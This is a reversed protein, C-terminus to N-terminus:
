SIYSIKERIRAEFTDLSVAHGATLGEVARELTTLHVRDPRLVADGSAEDYKVVFWAIDCNTIDNVCDMKGLASFFAEDVVVAMKKGWRRLTPVKIQLQPMLRKPGSSRFDPRRHQAPFPIGDESYAMIARYEHSMASGSFYVAQMELACWRMPDCEPHVLVSDIRGVDERGPYGSYEIQEVNRELFGVENVVLPDSHGLIEEGIWEYIVKGEDFRCPCTTVLVGSTGSVISVAGSATDQRYLRLSCVGSDKTCLANGGRPACMMDPRDKKALTQLKAFERREEPTLKAFSRGYWEGIGYRYRESAGASKKNM